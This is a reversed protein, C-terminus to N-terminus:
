AKRTPTTLGHVAVNRISASQFLKPHDLLAQLLEPHRSVDLMTGDEFHVSAENRNDNGRLAIVKAVDIRLDHEHEQLWSVFGEDVRLSRRPWPREKPKIFAVALAAVAGAVFGAVPHYIAAPIGWIAAGLLMRFVAFARPTASPITFDHEEPAIHTSTRYGPINREAVESFREEAAGLLAEADEPLKTLRHSGVLLHGKDISAKAADFFVLSSSHTLGLANRFRGIRVSSKPTTPVVFLLVGLVFASSLLAQVPKDPTCIAAVSVGVLMAIIRLRRAPEPAAPHWDTADPHHALVSTVRPPATWRKAKQPTTQSRENKM